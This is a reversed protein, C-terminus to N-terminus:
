GGNGVYRMESLPSYVIMGEAIIQEKKFPGVSMSRSDLSEQRNDGILLYEDEALRKGEYDNTFNKLHREKKVKECYTSDLFPEKVANGNVYLVDGKYQIVEGPLGIVRKVWLDKSKYNKAVVVDFRDVDGILSAAVNIIVSEGDKLAPHMSKGKVEEKRGVFMMLLSAIVICILLLRLLDVFTYLLELTDYTRKKKM